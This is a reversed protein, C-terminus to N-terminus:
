RRHAAAPQSLVNLNKWKLTADIKGPLLKWLLPWRVSDLAFKGNSATRVDYGCETLIGVLLRLNDPTDDVVLINAKGSKQLTEHM